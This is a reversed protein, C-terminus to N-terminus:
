ITYEDKKQYSETSILLHPPKNILNTPTNILPTEIVVQSNIMSPPHNFSTYESRNSSHRTYQENFLPLDNM